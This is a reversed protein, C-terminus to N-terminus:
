MEDENYQELWGITILPEALRRLAEEKMRLMRALEKLSAPNSNKWSWIVGGQRAERDQKAWAELLLIWLGFVALGNRGALLEIVKPTSTDTPISVYELGSKFKKTSRKDGKPDFRKWDTIRFGIESM